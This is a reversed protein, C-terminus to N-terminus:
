NKKSLSLTRLMQEAAQEMLPAAERMAEHLTMPSNVISWVAGLGHAYLPEIGQGVSGALAVTPVGAKKAEQAIGMPTKGSVTQHDIRGEGTIVLDADLLENRLQTHAIVVDIGRQTTVPFFAQFAGGIGGAAGAGPLNHMRIGTAQEVLDAWSSMQQELDDVQDPSAGKQPGFIRTAGESGLLPNEVDSALVFRAEAIRSDWASFDIRQIKGLSGGGFAVENGNHDLLRLGLAQLMGAGGDNTASGGIAIIFQRCGQDLAHKILEGTGYTTTIAPNRQSEDVLCLGSTKAMEIVAVHGETLLGYESQICEGLPGTVNVVIREGDAAALLSDLTGEGGDAIPIKVIDADPLFRRIGREIASAAGESSLSGKFSDPAVIIKMM